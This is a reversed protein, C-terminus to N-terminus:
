YYHNTAPHNQFGQMGATGLGAPGGCYPNYYEFSQPYPAVQQMQQAQRMAQLQQIQQLQQLLHIPKIM